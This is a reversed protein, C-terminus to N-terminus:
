HKLNVVIAVNGLPVITTDRSLSMNTKTLSRIVLRGNLQTFVNGSINLVTENDSFNWNFTTEQQDANNCKTAGEDNIATNDRRFTLKNDTRCVPVTTAAFPFDITGNKDTDVGSSEHVWGGSTLLDTKTEANSDGDNKTCASFLSCSLTLLLLSSFIKM